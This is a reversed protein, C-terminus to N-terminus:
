EADSLYDPHPITSNAYCPITRDDKLCQTEHVMLDDLCPFSRKCKACPPNFADDAKGMQPTCRNCQYRRQRMDYDDEGARFRKRGTSVHTWGCSQKALMTSNHHRVMYPHFALEVNTSADALASAFAQIDFADKEADTFPVEFDAALIEQTTIQGRFYHSVARKGMQVGAAKVRTDLAIFQDAYARATMCPPRTMTVFAEMLTVPAMYLLSNRVLTRVEVWNFTFTPLGPLPALAKRALTTSIVHKLTLDFLSECHFKVMRQAFRCFWSYQKMCPESLEYHAGRNSQDHLFPDKKWLDFAIKDLKTADLDQIMTQFTESNSTLAETVAKEVIAEYEVMYGDFVLIPVDLGIALESSQDSVKARLNYLDDNWESTEAFIPVKFWCRQQEDVHRMINRDGVQAM